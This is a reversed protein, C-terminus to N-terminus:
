STSTTKTKETVRSNSDYSNLNFRLKNLLEDDIKQSDFETTRM